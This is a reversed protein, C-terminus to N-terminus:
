ESRSVREKKRTKLGSRNNANEVGHVIACTAAYGQRDADADAFTSLDSNGYCSSQRQFM